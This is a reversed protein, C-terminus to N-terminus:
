DMVIETGSLRSSLQSYSPCCLNEAVAELAVGNEQRLLVGVGFAAQLETMEQTFLQEGAAKVIGRVVRQRQHAATAMFQEIGFGANVPVVLQHHQPFSEHRRHQQLRSGDDVAVFFQFHRAGLAACLGAGRNGGRNLVEAGRPKVWAVVELGLLRADAYPRVALGCCDRYRRTCLKLAAFFLKAMRSYTEVEAPRM